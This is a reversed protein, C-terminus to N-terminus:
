HSRSLGAVVALYVFIACVVLLGVFMFWYAASPKNKYFVSLLWIELAAAVVAAMIAINRRNSSGSRNSFDTLWAAILGLLLANTQWTAFDNPELYTPTVDPFRIGLCNNDLMGQDEGETGYMADDNM